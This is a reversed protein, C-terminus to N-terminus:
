CRHPIRLHPRRVADLDAVGLPCHGLRRYLGIGVVEPEAALRCISSIGRGSALHNM